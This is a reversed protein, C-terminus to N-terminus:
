PTVPGKATTMSISKGQYVFEGIEFDLYNDTPTTVISLGKLATDTPTSTLMKAMLTAASTNNFAASVIKIADHFIAASYLHNTGGSQRKFSDLFSYNVVPGTFRVGDILDGAAEVDATSELFNSGFIPLNMDLSRLQRIFIGNIGPNFCIAVGSFNGKKIKLIQARFDNPEVTFTEWLGKPSLSRIKAGWSEAYGHTGTLVALKETVAIDSNKLMKELAGFDKEPSAWLRLVMPNNKFIEGANAWVLLPIRRRMALPAVAQGTTSDGVIVVSVKEVEVLRNFATVSKSPIFQDDEFLIKLDGIKAIEIGRRFADGYAAYEGSFGAIVGVRNEANADELLRV